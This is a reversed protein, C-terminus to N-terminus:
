RAEFAGFQYNLRAYASYDKVLKVADGVAYVKQATGAYFAAMQREACLFVRSEQPVFPEYEDCM